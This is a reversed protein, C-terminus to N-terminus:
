TTHFTNWEEFGNVSENDNDNDNNNSLPDVPITPDLEPTVSRSVTPSRSYLEISKMLLDLRRDCNDKYLRLRRLNKKYNPRRLYSAWKKPHEEITNQIYILEAKINQISNIIEDYCYRIAEPTGADIVIGSLLMELSRLYSKLDIELLTSQILPYQYTMTNKALQYTDRIAESLFGRGFASAIGATAFAEM